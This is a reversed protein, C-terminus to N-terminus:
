QPYGFQLLNGERLAKSGFPPGSRLTISFRAHEYTKISAPTRGFRRNLPNSHPVSDFIKCWNQPVETATAGHIIPVLKKAGVLELYSGM